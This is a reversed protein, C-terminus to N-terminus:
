FISIFTKPLSPHLFRIIGVSFQVVLINVGFIGGIAINLSLFVLFDVM